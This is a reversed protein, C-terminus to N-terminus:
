VQTGMAQKVGNTAKEVLKSALDLEHSLRYVRAQLGILEAPSFSRGSRAQQVIRDMERQGLAVDRLVRTILSPAPTARRPAPPGTLREEFGAGRTGADTPRPCPPAAGPAVVSPIPTIM